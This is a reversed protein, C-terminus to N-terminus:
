STCRQRKFNGLKEICGPQRYQLRITQGFVNTDSEIVRVIMLEARHTRRHWSAFNLDSGVALDHNV